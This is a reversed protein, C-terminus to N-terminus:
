KLVSTLTNKKEKRKKELIQKETENGASLTEERATLFRELAQVLDFGVSVVGEGAGVIEDQFAEGVSISSGALRGPRRAVHSM